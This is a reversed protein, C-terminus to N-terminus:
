PVFKVGCLRTNPQKFRTLLSVFNPLSRLTAGGKM